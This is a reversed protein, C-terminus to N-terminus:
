VNSPLNSSQAISIIHSLNSDETLSISKSSIANETVSLRLFSTTGLIM